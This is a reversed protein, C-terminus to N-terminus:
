PTWRKEALSMGHSSLFTRLEIRTQDNAGSEVPPISLLFKTGSPFQTLKKKLADLSRFEYQAVRAHFGVTSSGDFSITLPQFLKAAREYRCQQCM